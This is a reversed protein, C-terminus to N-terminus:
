SQNCQEFEKRIVFNSLFYDRIFIKWVYKANFLNGRSYPPKYHKKLYGDQKTYATHVIFKGLFDVVLFIKLFIEM